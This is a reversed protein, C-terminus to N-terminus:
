VQLRVTCEAMVLDLSDPDTDSEIDIDIRTQSPSPNSATMFAPLNAPFVPSDVGLTGTAMKTAERAYGGVESILL